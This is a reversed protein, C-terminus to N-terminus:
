LERTHQPCRTRIAELNKDSRHDDEGWGCTTCVNCVDCLRLLQQATLKPGGMQENTRAFRAMAIAEGLTIQRRYLSGDTRSSNPRPGGTDSTM